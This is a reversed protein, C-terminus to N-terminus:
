EMIGAFLAYSICLLVHFGLEVVDMSTSLVLAVEAGVRLRVGYVRRPYRPM